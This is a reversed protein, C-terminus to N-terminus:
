SCEMQLSHESSCKNHHAGCNLCDWEDVGVKVLPNVYGCVHCTKSTDRPSVKVLNGKYAIFQRLM